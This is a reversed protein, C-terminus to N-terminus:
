YGFASRTSDPVPMFPEVEKVFNAFAPILTRRMDQSLGAFHVIFDGVQWASRGFVHSNFINANNIRLIRTAFQHLDIMARSLAANAWWPHDIYEEYDWIAELFKMVEADNKYLAVGDNLNNSTDICYMVLKDTRELEGTLVGLSFHPNTVMADADIWMFYEIEPYTTMLHLLIPIRAWSIPRDTIGPDDFYFFPLGHLESYRRVSDVCPQFVDCYEKTGACLSVLGITM